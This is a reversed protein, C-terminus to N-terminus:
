YCYSTIIAHSVDHGSTCAGVVLARKGKWESGSSHGSSHVAVGAWREQGPFPAPMKPKGGGLGTALVIHSVTLKRTQTSGDEMTRHITVHWQKKRQDYETETPELVSQCWTNVELVDVYSELFNALKGAPTFVPWNSPFAMFPLHNAYM